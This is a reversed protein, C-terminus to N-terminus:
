HPPGLFEGFVQFLLFALLLVALVAVISRDMDKFVALMGAIGAALGFSLMLVSYFPLVVTWWDTTVNNSALAILLMALSVAGLRLAWWGSSSSPKWWSSKM